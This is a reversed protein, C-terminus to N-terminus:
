IQVIRFFCRSECSKQAKLLKHHSIFDSNYCCDEAQKHRKRAEIGATRLVSVHKNISHAPASGRLELLRYVPEEILELGVGVGEEVPNVEVGAAVPVLFLAAFIGDFQM